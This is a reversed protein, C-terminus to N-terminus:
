YQLRPPILHLKRYIRRHFRTGESRAESWRLFVVIGEFVNPLPWHYLETTSHMHSANPEIGLVLIFRLLLHSPIIACTSWVPWWLFKLSQSRQLDCSLQWM